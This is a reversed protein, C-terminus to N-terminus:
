FFFSKHFCISISNNDSSHKGHETNGERNHGYKTKGNRDENQTIMLENTEM